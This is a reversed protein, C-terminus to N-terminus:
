MSLTASTIYWIGDEDQILSLLMRDESSIGFNKQPDKKADFFARMAIVRNLDEIGYGYKFSYVYTNKRRSETYAEDVKIEKLEFSLCSKKYDELYAKVVAEPDDAAYASYYENNKVEEWNDEITWSDSYDEQLEDPIYWLGEDCEILNIYIRSYVNKGNENIHYFVETQATRDPINEESEIGYDKLIYVNPYGNVGWRDDIVDDVVAGFFPSKKDESFYKLYNMTTKEPSEAAFVDQKEKLETWLKNTSEDYAKSTNESNEAATNEATVVTTNESQHATSDAISESFAGELDAAASNACGSLSLLLVASLVIPAIIIKKM